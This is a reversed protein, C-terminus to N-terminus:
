KVKNTISDLCALHPFCWWGFPPPLFLLVVLFSTSFAAGGDLLDSHCCWECPLPFAAAGLPPLLICCGVLVSLPRSCWWVFCSLPFHHHHQPPPPVPSPPTHTHQQQFTLSNNNSPSVEAFNQEVIKARLIFTKTECGVFVSMKRQFFPSRGFNTTSKRPTTHHPTTHQVAPIPNPRTSPPSCAEVGWLPTSAGRKNFRLRGLNYKQKQQKQRLNVLRIMGIDVGRFGVGDKDIIQEVFRQRVQSFVKFVAVGVAAQRGVRQGPVWEPSRPAARSLFLTRRM